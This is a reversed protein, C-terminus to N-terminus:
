GNAMAMIGLAILALITSIISSIIAIMSLIMFGLAEWGGVISATAGLAFGILLLAAQPIFGAVINQSGILIAVSIATIVVSVGGIVLWLGLNEM